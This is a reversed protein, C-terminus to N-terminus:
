GKALVFGWILKAGAEKLIKASEELTAGTTTVDDILIINKNKIINTDKILFVGKINEQREKETLTTQSPTNKIKILVDREFPIEIQNAIEKALLEAQNFGRENFKTKQLPVPIILWNEKASFLNKLESSLITKTMLSGLPKALDKVFEYKFSHIMKRIVQHCYPVLWVLGNLFTKKQCDLCTQGYFSLRNCIPCIFKTEQALPQSCTQCLYAGEKHCGFCSIPFLLGLLYNVIKQITM